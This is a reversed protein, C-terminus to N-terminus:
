LPLPPPIAFTRGTRRSFSFKCPLENERHCISLRPGSVPPSLFNLFIFSFPYLTLFFSVVCAVAEWINLFSFWFRPSPVSSFSKPPFLRRALFFLASSSVFSPFIPVPARDKGNLAPGSLPYHKHYHPFSIRRSLLNFFSVAVVRFLGTERFSSLLTLALSFFIM